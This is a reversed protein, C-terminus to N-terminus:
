NASPFNITWGAPPPEESGLIRQAFTWIHGELDAVKYALDGFFYQEPESLIRAGAAKAKACHAVVDRYSRMRVTQTNTGNIAAPSCALNNEEPLIAVTYQGWGSEAFVLVGDANKVVLRTEFGFAEGLWDLAAIPDQYHLEALIEVGDKDSM